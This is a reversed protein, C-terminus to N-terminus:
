VIKDHISINNMRDIEIHQNNWKMVFRVFEWWVRFM